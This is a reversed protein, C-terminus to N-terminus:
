VDVVICLDLPTLISAIVLYVQLNFYELTELESDDGLLVILIREDVNIIFPM